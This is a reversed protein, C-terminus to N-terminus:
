SLPKRVAGHSQQYEKGMAYGPCDNAGTNATFCANPFLITGIQALIISTFRMAM